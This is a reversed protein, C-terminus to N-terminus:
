PTIISSQYISRKNGRKNPEGKKTLEVGFYVCQPYIGLGLYIKIKEIKITGTNDTVIDGIKYPNNAYAFERYLEEKAAEFSMKIEMLKKDYAVQTM